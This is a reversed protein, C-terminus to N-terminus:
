EYLTRLRQYMKRESLVDTNDSIQDVGGIYLPLRKVAEDQIADRIAEVFQGSHIVLYPRNHFRSVETHLPATIGLANHMRAAERYAESLHAERAHWDSARLAAQFVPTLRPACALRSFATGFWKSYPAYRKEMLFCLRMLDRALRAALVQSGLEDGVDGTRGVFPEDQDIRRWQAALLYLWVDHPYYAFKERMATLEGTTDHYVRGATVTLLRQEPLTLWDVPTLERTPDVNLQQRFFSEVTFVDVRHKMPASDDDEFHLIGPEEVSERFSTAYGRVRRPLQDRLAAHIAEAYHAADSASLFLMVRPGWHHDRSLPTDYGLVESGNGLLAAGYPLAPLQRELIPKVAEEYFIGSLELGPIFEPMAPQM